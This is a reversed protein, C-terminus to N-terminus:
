IGAYVLRGQVTKDFQPVTITVDAVLQKGGAALHLRREVDMRGGKTKLVLTEGDWSAVETPGGGRGEAVVPQGDPTWVRTQDTGDMIEIQDGNVTILLQRMATALDRTGTRGPAEAGAEESPPGGRGGGPGGMGGGSGGMGGGRGGMGGGRGGMGGGRGGGGSGRKQAMQERIEVMLQDMQAQLDVSANEDLNWVGTLDVPMEIAVTEATTTEAGALGTLVLCATLILLNQQMRDM